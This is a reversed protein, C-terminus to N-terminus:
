DTKKLIGVQLGMKPRNILTAAYDLFRSDKKPISGIFFSKIKNKKTKM